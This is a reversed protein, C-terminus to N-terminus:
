TGGDLERNITQAILRLEATGIKNPVMIFTGCKGCAVIEIKYDTIKLIKNRHLCKKCLKNIGLVYQKIEKDAM